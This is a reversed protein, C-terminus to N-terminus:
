LPDYYSKISEGKPKQYRKDLTFAVEPVMSALLKRNQDRDRRGSVLADENPVGQAMKRELEHKEKSRRSSAEAADRRIPGLVISNYLILFALGGGVAIVFKKNEKWFYEM